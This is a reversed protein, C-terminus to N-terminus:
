YDQYLRVAKGLFINSIIYRVDLPNYLGFGNATEATILYRSDSSIDMSKIASKCKIKGIMEGTASRWVVVYSDDSCTFLLDGDRNFKVVRVPREHGRLAFVNM